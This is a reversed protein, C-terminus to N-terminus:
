EGGGEGALRGSGDPAFPEVVVAGAVPDGVGGPLMVAVEIADQAVVGLGAEHDCPLLAAIARRCPGPNVQDAEVRHRRPAPSEAEGGPGCRGGVGSGGGCRSVALVRAGTASPERERPHLLGRAAEVLLLRTGALIEPQRPTESDGAVVPLRGFAFLRSMTSLEPGM